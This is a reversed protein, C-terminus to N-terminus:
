CFSDLSVVQFSSNRSFREVYESTPVVVRIDDDSFQKLDLDGIYRWEAEKWWEGKSYTQTYDDSQSAQTVDDISNLYKVPKIGIDMASDKKIAVGFPEFTYRVYRRRWKMLEIAKHPHLETFSVASKGSKMWSSSGRLKHESLIRKLTADATRPYNVGCHAIVRYYDASKEGPWPGSFRRTWHTIYDWDYSIGSSPIEIVMEMKDPKKQYGTQFERNVRKGEILPSKLIKDWRGGDRISVPTIEYAMEIASNDRNEWWGKKGRSGVTSEVFVLACRDLKFDFDQMFYEMNNVIEDEKEKPLIIIATGGYEGVAWLVLEWTNMGISAIVTRGMSIESKVAEITNKVWPDGGKPYKGQRSNLIVSPDGELMSPNGFFRTEIYNERM